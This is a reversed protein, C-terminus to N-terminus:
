SERNEKEQKPVILLQSSILAIVTAVLLIILNTPPPVEAILPACIGAIRGLLNCFGMSSAKLITPFLLVINFYVGVFGMSYGFKTMFVLYPTLSGYNIFIIMLLLGIIGLTFAGMYLRKLGFRYIVFGATLKGIIEGCATTYSNTYINGALYKLLLNVMFYGITM